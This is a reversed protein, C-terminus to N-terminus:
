TAAKDKALKHWGMQGLAMAISTLVEPTLGDLATPIEMGILMGLQLLLWNVVVLAVGHVVAPLKMDVFKALIQVGEYAYRGLVAALIPLLMTVLQDM